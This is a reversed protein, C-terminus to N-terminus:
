RRCQMKVPPDDLTQGLRALHLGMIKDFCKFKKSCVPIEGRPASIKQHRISDPMKVAIPNRM